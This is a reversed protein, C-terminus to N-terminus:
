AVNRKVVSVTETAAGSLGVAHPDRSQLQILQLTDNSSGASCAGSWGVPAGSSTLTPDWYQVSVVTVQPNGTAYSGAVACSQFTAAKVTEAATVLYTTLAGQSAKLHSTVEAVAIAGLIAAFAISLIAISMLSEVLTEGGDLRLRSMVRKM